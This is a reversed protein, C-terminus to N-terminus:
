NLGGRTAIIANLTFDTEHRVISINPTPARFYPKVGATYATATATEMWVRVFITKSGRGFRYNRNVFDACEAAQKDACPNRSKHERIGGVGVGGGVGDGRRRTRTIRNIDLGICYYNGIDNWNGILIGTMKYAAYLSYDIENWGFKYRVFLYLISYEGPFFFLCKDTFTCM